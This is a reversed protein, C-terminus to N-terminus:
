HSGNCIEKKTFSIVWVWPNADWDGGTSAWLDAFSTVPNAAYFRGDEAHFGHGDAHPAIGEALADAESIAQLREVRVDTIELLLRCADRPMHISPKWVKPIGLHDGMRYGHEYTARYDVEILRGDVSSQIPSFTERVWLRDGIKGFACDAWYSDGALPHKAPLIPWRRLATLPKGAAQEESWYFFGSPRTGGAPTFCHAESAFTAWERPLEGGVKVVRRTQTKAGSLIARVMAGNFLIPRERM